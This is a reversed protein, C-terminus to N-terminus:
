NPTFDNKVIVINRFKVYKVNDAMGTITVQRETQMAAIEPPPDAFPFFFM